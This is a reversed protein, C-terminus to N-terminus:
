ARGALRQAAARQMGVDGSWACLVAGRGPIEVLQRPHGFLVVTASTALAAAVRQRSEASLGAHGKWSKVDAFVLVVREGGERLEVGEARLADAFATRSPLPYPGGLDDDVIEVSVAGGPKPPEGRLLAVARRCLEEGRERHRALQADTLVAPGGAWTAAVHRKVAAEPAMDALAGGQAAAEEVAHAVAELGKPYLLLDCGAGLAAVAGEAEGIGRQAGEMILADTVVLGRFRMGMRLLNFLVPRSYTAPSGSGDLAPYAVHATMISRVGSAIARAFPELDDLLDSWHADVIPLEAHSDTRTRGHGPFHKACALVSEKQCAEIWAAALAAVRAPEAGFARTAVIPNAPEVDLDVVPAMAWNIGVDRAELATLRAAERVADEGLRALAMLPPLPTLGHVQQGAGRELDSAILLRHPAAAQLDHTLRQVAGREGGFVIFGGVGLDLARDITTREPDFGLEPHFRLAPMVLEAFPRM